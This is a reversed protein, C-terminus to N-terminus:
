PRTTCTYSLCSSITQPGWQSGLLPIDGKLLLMHHRTHTIGSKPFGLTTNNHTPLRPNHFDRYCGKKSPLTRWLDQLTSIIPEKSLADRPCRKSLDCSMTEHLSSPTIPEQLKSAPGTKWKTAAWPFRHVARYQGMSIHHGAGQSTLINHHTNLAHLLLLPVMQRLQSAHNWPTAYRDM